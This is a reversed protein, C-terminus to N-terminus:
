QINQDEDFIKDFYNDRKKFYEVFQKLKDETSAGACPINSIVIAKYLEKLQKKFEQERLDSKENLKKIQCSLNHAKVAYLAIVCTAVATVCISTIQIDM